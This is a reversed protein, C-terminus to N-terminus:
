RRCRGKPAEDTMENGRQIFIRRAVRPGRPRVQWPPRRAIAPGSAIARRITRESVRISTACERITYALPERQGDNATM